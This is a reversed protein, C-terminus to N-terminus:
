QNGSIERFILAHTVNAQAGPVLETLAQFSRGNLPINEAFQRTIYLV